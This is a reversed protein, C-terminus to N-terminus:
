RGPQDPAFCATVAAAYIREATAHHEEAQDSFHELTVGSNVEIVALAGDVEVIDVSGFALGLSRMARLALEALAASLEPEQRATVPIAAAGRNLNHRWEGSEDGWADADSEADTEARAPRAPVRKEFVLEVRGNLAIIRYEHGVPVWPSVALAPYRGALHHLEALLGARSRARRVDHGGSGSLPKVVLPLPLRDAWHALEEEGRPRLLAHPVNPVGDDSLLASTAVKDSAITASAADNLPFNYGVVHRRRGDARLEAVWHGSHWRLEAGALEAARGLCAVFHPRRSVGPGAGAASLSLALREMASAADAVKAANPAVPDVGERM